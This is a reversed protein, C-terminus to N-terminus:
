PEAEGGSQGSMIGLIERISMSSDLKYTGAKIKYSYFRATFLFAYRNWIIGREELQKGIRLASAGKEVTITEATVTKAETEGPAFVRYGFRYSRVAGEFLMWVVFILLLFRLSVSIVTVAARNVNKVMRSM